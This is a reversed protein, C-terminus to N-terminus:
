SGLRKLAQRAATTVLVGPVGDALAQLVQRAQPTGIRELLEVARFARLREGQLVLSTLQSRLNELRKRAELPPNAVLAKDLAPVIREGAKVLEGTAKERIKYQGDSLQAIWEEIAKADLEGAPQLREKLLRLADEPAAQLTQIAFWAQAADAGALARWHKDIDGAALPQAPIKPRQLKSMDWVLATTDASASVLSQSDPSLAVANVAGGHGKFTALEKGTAIDWVCVTQNSRALALTRGDRGLAMHSALVPADLAAVLVRNQKMPQPPKDGYIHRVQTTALEYLTITDDNHEVALCRGDPTFAASRLPNQDALPLTGSQQGTATNWLLLQNQGSYSALMSGDASFVVATARNALAPRVAGGDKPNVPAVALAHLLKGTATDYLELKPERPASLSAIALASGDPSFVLSNARPSLATRGMEITALQKDKALDTITVTYGTPAVRALQALLKGDPSLALANGAALLPSLPQVGRETLSLRGLDKGTGASWRHINGEVDRTLLQKGGATFQVAVLAVSHGGGGTLSKGSGVDLLDMACGSGVVLLTNGDPSLSLGVGTTDRLVRVSNKSGKNFSQLLKGASADWIQVSGDAHRVFLKTADKDFVMTTIADAVPGEQRYELVRLEKGSVLDHLRIPSGDAFFTALTKGDPALAAAVFISPGMRATFGRPLRTLEDSSPLSIRRIEKGSPFEWLRIAMDDGVSVISKGDPLFQAFGVTDAHRWHTSGLRYSAGAPLADAAAEKAGPQDQGATASGIMVLLLGVLPIVFARM